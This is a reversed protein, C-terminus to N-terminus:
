CRIDEKSSLLGEMLFAYCSQFFMRIVSIRRLLGEMLFAYCPQFFMRVISIRRLLGEMLFAYCPQFFMRIVHIRRLLGEMLIAYCPQFFVKFMFFTSYTVLLFSCPFLFDSSYQRVADLSKELSRLRDDMFSIENNFREVEGVAYGLDHELVAGEPRGELESLEKLLGLKDETVQVLEDKLRWILCLCKLFAKEFWIMRHYVKAGSPVLLQKKEEASLPLLDESDSLPDENSDVTMPGKGSSEGSRSSLSGSADDLPCKKLVYSIPRSDEGSSGSSLPMHTYQSGSVALATSIPTDVVVEDAGVFGQVEGAHSTAPVVPKRSFEVGRGSVM